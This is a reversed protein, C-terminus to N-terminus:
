MATCDFLKRRVLESGHSVWHTKYIELEYTGKSTASRLVGATQFQIYPVKTGLPRRQPFENMVGLILRRKKGKTYKPALRCIHFGGIRM